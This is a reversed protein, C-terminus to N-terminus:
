RSRDRKRNKKKHKPQITCVKREIAKAYFPLDETLHLELRLKRLQINIINIKGENKIPNDKKLDVRLKILYGITNNIHDVAKSFSAKDTIQYKYVMEYTRLFKTSKILDERAIKHVPRARERM